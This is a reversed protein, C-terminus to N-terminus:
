ACCCCAAAAAAASIGACIGAYTCRQPGMCDGHRHRQRSKRVACFLVFLGFFFFLKCCLM